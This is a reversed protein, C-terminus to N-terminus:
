CFIRFVGFFFSIFGLAFQLHSTFTFTVYQLEENSYIMGCQLLFEKLFEEMKEQETGEGGNTAKKGKGKVKTDTTGKWGNNIMKTSQTVNFIKSVKGFLVSINDYTTPFFDQFLTLFSSLVVLVEKIEKVGKVDKVYEVDKVDKVDKAERAERAEKM